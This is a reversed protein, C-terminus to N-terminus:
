IEVRFIFEDRKYSGIDSDRKSLLKTNHNNKFYNYFDELRQNREKYIFPSVIIFYNIGNCSKAIKECLIDIDFEEIDLINSFLHVDIKNASTKIDDETLTGIEENLPIINYDREKVIDIHLMGRSLAIESPEILLIDSINIKINNEKIYEIFLSSALAQGAGWDILNIDKSSLEKEIIEDYASYLKARHMKGYSYIYQSLEIEYELIKIGRELGDFVEDKNSITDIIKKNVERITYCSPYYLTYLKESYGSEEIEVVYNEETLLEKELDEKQKELKDKLTDFYKDLNKESKIIKVIDDSCLENIESNLIDIQKKYEKIKEKLVTKDKITDSSIEFETGNELSFLIKKLTELDQKSYADNLQQMIKNAQERLEQSVIDPHCLKSAKKWILKLEKKEEDSLKFINDSQKKIEQYSHRYERYTERTRKFQADGQTLKEELNDVVKKQTRLEDRLTHLEEKLKQYTSYLENYAENNKGVQELIEKFESINKEIEKIITQLERYKIIEKRYTKDTKRLNKLVMQKQLTLITQILAGLRLGYVRNFEDVDNDYENKEQSLSQLKEELKKLELKLGEIEPDKYEVMGRYRFLYDKILVAVDGFDNAELRDLIGEIESNLEVKRLKMIQLEIIEEEDISIATLILELRKLIEQM